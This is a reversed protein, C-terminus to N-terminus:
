IHLTNRLITALIILTLLTLIYPRSRLLPSLPTHPRLHDITHLLIIPLYLTLLLPNARHAQLPHLHLLHHIARQTGCGPCQIHLLTNLPCRPYYPTHAPDHTYYIYATILILPIAIALLLVPHPIPRSPHRRPPYPPPTM